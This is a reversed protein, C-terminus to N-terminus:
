EQAYLHLSGRTSERCCFSGPELNLGCKWCIGTSIGLRTVFAHVPPASPVWLCAHDQCPDPPQAAAHVHGQLLSVLSALALLPQVALSSRAPVPTFPPLPPCWPPQLCLPGCVSEIIVQSVSSKEDQTIPTQLLAGDVLPPHPCPIYLCQCPAPIAGERIGVLHETVLFPSFSCCPFPSTHSWSQCGPSPCPPMQHCWAYSWKLLNSGTYARFGWGLFTKLWFWFDKEARQSNLKEHHNYGEQSGSSRHALLVPSTLWLWFKQTCLLPLQFTFISM